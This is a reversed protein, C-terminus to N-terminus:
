HAVVVREGTSGLASTEFTVQQGPLLIEGPTMVPWRYSVAGGPDVLRGELAPVPHPEDTPNEVSGSVAFVIRGNALPEPDVSFRVAVPSRPVAPPDVIRELWPVRSLDLPPLDPVWMAAAGASFGLGLAVALLSKLVPHGRPPENDDDDIQVVPEDAVPPSPAPPEDPPFIPAESQPPRDAIDRLKIIEVPELGLEFWRHKCSACRMARGDAPIANDALRYRAGCEPCSVIMPARM